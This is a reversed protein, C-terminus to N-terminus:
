MGWADAYLAVAQRHLALIMGVVAWPVFAGRSVIWTTADVAGHVGIAVISALGAWSLVALAHAGTARYRRAADWACGLVLGLLALVAILGPLGLDVAVQLLLNHAHEVWAGHLYFPFQTDLIAEFTGAGAGTYPMDRVLDLSRSWLEFRGMHGDLGAAVLAPGVRWVVGALGLAGAPALWILRPWRYLSMVWVAVAAGMWAGRSQTLLLMAM